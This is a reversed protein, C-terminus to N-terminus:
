RALPRKKYPQRLVSIMEGKPYTKRRLGNRQEGM